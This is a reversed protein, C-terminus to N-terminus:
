EYLSILRDVARSVAWKNMIHLDTNKYRLLLYNGREGAKQTYITIDNVGNINYIDDVETSMELATIPLQPVGHELNSFGNMMHVAISFANDNRFMGQSVSYLECYYQYNEQICKVLMFLNEAMASKKFYIVTAWYRRIGFNDLIMSLQNQAM